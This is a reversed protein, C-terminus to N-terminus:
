SRRKRRSGKVLPAREPLVQMLDTRAEPTLRSWGAIEYRSRYCGMCLGSKEHIVCLKVCPSEVEERKWVEDFETM